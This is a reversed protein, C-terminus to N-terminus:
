YRERRASVSELWLTSLKRWSGHSRVLEPYKVGEGFPWWLWRSTVALQGGGVEFEV